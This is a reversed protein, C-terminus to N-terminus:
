PTPTRVPIPKVILKNTPFKAKASFMWYMSPTFIPTNVPDNNDVKNPYKKINSVGLLYIIKVLEKEYFKKKYKQDVPM